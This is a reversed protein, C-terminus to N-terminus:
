VVLKVTDTGAVVWDRNEIYILSHLWNKEVNISAIEAHTNVSYLSIVGEKFSVAIAKLKPIFAM